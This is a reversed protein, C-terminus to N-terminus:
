SKIIITLGQETSIVQIYVPANFVDSIIQLIRDNASAGGTVLIRRSKGVDLYWTFLIYSIFEAIQSIM